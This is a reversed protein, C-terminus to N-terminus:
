RHAEPFLGLVDSTGLPVFPSAPQTAPATVSAGSTQVPKFHADLFRLFAADHDRAVVVDLLAYGGRELAAARIDAAAFGVYLGMLLELGMASVDNVPLGAAPLFAFLLGILVLLSSFRWNAHWLCYPLPLLFGWFSFGEQVLVIQDPQVHTHAKPGFLAFSAM